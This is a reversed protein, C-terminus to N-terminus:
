EVLVTETKSLTGTGLNLGFMPIWQYQYNVSFQAAQGQVMNNFGATCTANATGAGPGFPGYVVTTNSSTWFTITYTFNGSFSPLDAVVAQAASLCPDQNPLIGRGNQLAQSGAFVAEGLEEYSYVAMSASFMGTMLAM